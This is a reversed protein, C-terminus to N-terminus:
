GIRMSRSSICKQVIQHPLRSELASPHYRWELQDSPARRFVTARKQGGGQESAPSTTQIHLSSPAPPSPNDAPPDTEHAPPPPATKYPSSKASASHIRRSHAAPRHAPPQTAARM